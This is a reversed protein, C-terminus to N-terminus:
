MISGTNKIEKKENSDGRHNSQFQRILHHQNLLYVTLWTEFNSVETLDQIDSLRYSSSNEGSRRLPHYFAIQRRESLLLTNSEYQKENSLLKWGRGLLWWQYQEGLAPHIQQKSLNLKKRRKLHQHNSINYRQWNDYQESHKTVIEGRRM